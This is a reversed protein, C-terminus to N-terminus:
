KAVKQTSLTKIAKIAKDKTKLENQLSQLRVSDLKISSVISDNQKREFAIVNLLSDVSSENRLNLKTRQVEFYDKFYQRSDVVIFVGSGILATVFLLLSIGLYKKMRSINKLLQYRYLRGQESKLQAQTFLHLKNLYDKQIDLDIKIGYLMLIYAGVTCIIVFPILTLIYQYDQM